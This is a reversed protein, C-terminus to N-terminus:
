SAPNAPAYKRLDPALLRPGKYAKVEGFRQHEIWDQRAQAIEEDTRAVFNWWMVVRERFPEGGILLLRSARSGSIRLKDRQAGIYHLTDGDLRRDEMSVDGELVFLAHEYDRRLPLQIPKPEHFAIEAGIIGSFMKAPSAQGLLDGIILTVEAATLDIKPLSAYHDFSPPMNRYEGPLAVWLQVGNLTGSNQRPTEESHAIGWGSTMLNLQGAHMLGECGLSDNHVIEGQLLWSVTQLGIHPHPAVDMPKESTFNLPGYRDLVCWPGVMRRQRRPLARLIKVSGLETQRAPLSEIGSQPDTENM